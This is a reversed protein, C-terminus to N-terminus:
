CWGLCVKKGQQQFYYALKAVSTTKGTGNIGAVIIVTPGQLAWHIGRGSEPWYKKLEEKLFPIADEGKEIQKQRYAQELDNRIKTVFSVGLDAQILTAELEDLVQADLKRGTLISRLSQVFRRRTKSLGQALKEIAKRFIAM